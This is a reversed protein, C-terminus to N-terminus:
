SLLASMIIAAGIVESWWLRNKDAIISFSLILFIVLYIWGVGILAALFGVVGFINHIWWVSKRGMYDDTIGVMIFSIGAIYFWLDYYFLFPVGIGMCMLRFWPKESTYYSHSLSRQVGYKATIKFLYGSLIGIQVAQLIM